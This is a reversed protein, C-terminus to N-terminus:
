KRVDDQARTFTQVIHFWGVTVQANPFQAEIGSLFAPPMDYVVELIQEPKGRHNELFAKFQKLTEKGKGPTVFLVPDSRREMDIFVTVYNHGRKSATEDLGVAKVNSIDFDGVAQGVYHQIIRWLRKDTTGIICAAANVPMERALVLAAQEFLLTFASGKRAWPVEALKVGHEPCKVRPVSAHVYCHHQFLNLHRWRKEQFDHAPCERGCVPCAYKAGREAKIELHLEHPQKDTDLHQNVLKWPAEIGLGLLLVQQSDM